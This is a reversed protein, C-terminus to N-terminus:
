NVPPLPTTHLEQFWALAEVEAAGEASGAAAAASANAYRTLIASVILPAHSIIDEDPFAALGLAGKRAVIKAVTAAYTRRQDDSDMLSLAFDSPM